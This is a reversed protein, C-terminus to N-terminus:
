NNDNNDDDDNNNNNNNNNNNANQNNPGNPGNQGNIGPRQFPPQPFQRRVNGPGSQPGANNNPGTGAAAKNDSLMLQQEPGGARLSVRDADVRTVQWGEISDGIGLGVALPQQPSKILALKKEGDLIVGVLSIDSPLTTGTTTGALSPSSVRIRSPNFVSRNDVEAFAAIPPAEFRPLPTNDEAVSDPKAQVQPVSIAPLPAFLLYALVFLLAACIASLVLQAPNLSLTM